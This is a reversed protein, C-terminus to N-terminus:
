HLQRWVLRVDPGECGSAPQRRVPPSDLPGWHDYSFRVRMQFVKDDQFDPYFLMTAPYPLTNPLLYQVNQNQPGQMVIGARNLAWSSDYFAQRSMGLEYALFLERLTDPRALERERLSDYSLTQECGLMMSALLIILTYRLNSSM